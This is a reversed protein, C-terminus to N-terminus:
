QNIVNWTFSDNLNQGTSTLQEKSRLNNEITYERYVRNWGEKLALDVNIPNGSCNMEGTLVVGKDVYWFETERYQKINSNIPRGIDQEVPIIKQIAIKKFVGGKETYTLRNIVFYKIDSPLNPIQVNQCNSHFHQLHKLDLQRSDLTLNINGNSGLTGIPETEFDPTINRLPTEPGQYDSLHGNVTINSSNSGPRPEEHHPMKTRNQPEACATLILSGALFFTLRKM